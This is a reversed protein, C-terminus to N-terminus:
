VLWLKEDGNVWAWWLAMDCVRGWPIENGGVTKLKKLNSNEFAEQIGNLGIQALIPHNVLSNVVNKDLAPMWGGLGMLIKTIMVHSNSINNVALSDYLKKWSSIYSESSGSSLFEKLIEKCDILVELLRNKNLGTRGFIKMNFSGLYLDMKEALLAINHKNSFIKDRGIKEIFDYLEEWRLGIENKKYELAMQYLNKIKIVIREKSARSVSGIKSPSNQTDRLM